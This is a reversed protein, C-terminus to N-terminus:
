RARKYVPRATRAAPVRKTSSKAVPRNSVPRPKARGKTMGEVASLLRNVRAETEIRALRQAANTNRIQLGLLLILLVVSGFMLFISETSLSELYTSVSMKEGLFGYKANTEARQM